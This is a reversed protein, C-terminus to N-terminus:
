DDPLRALSVRRRDKPKFLLPGRRLPRNRQANFLRRRHRVWQWDRHPDGIVALNERVRARDRRRQPVTRWDREPPCLIATRAVDNKLLVSRLDLLRGLTM